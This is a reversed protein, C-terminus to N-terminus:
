SPFAKYGIVVGIATLILGIITFNLFLIGGLFALSVAILGLKGGKEYILFLTVILAIIPLVKMIFIYIPSVGLDQFIKIFSKIIENEPNTGAAIWLGEIFGFGIVLQKTISSDKRM